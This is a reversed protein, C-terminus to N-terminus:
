KETNRGAPLHARGADTLLLPKRLSVEPGWVAWKNRVLANATPGTIRGGDAHVTSDAFARSSRYAGGKALLTLAAAQAKTPKPTTM